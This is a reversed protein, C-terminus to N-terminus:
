WIDDEPHYRNPEEEVSSSGAFFGLAHMIAFSELLCWLGFIIKFLNWWWSHYTALTLYVHHIWNM